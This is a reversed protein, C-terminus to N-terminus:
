DDGDGCKQISRIIATPIIFNGFDIAKNQFDSSMFTSYQREGHLEQGNDLTIIVGHQPLKYTPGVSEDIHCGTIAQITDKNKDEVQKKLQGFNYENAGALNRQDIPTNVYRNILCLLIFVDDTNQGVFNNEVGDLNSAEEAFAAVVDGDWTVEFYNEDSDYSASFVTENNIALILEDKTM